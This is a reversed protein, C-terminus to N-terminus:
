WLVYNNTLFYNTAAGSSRQGLGHRNNKLVANRFIQREKAVTNSHCHSSNMNKKLAGPLFKM